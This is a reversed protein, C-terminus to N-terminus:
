SWAVKVVNTQMNPLCCRSFSHLYVWMTLSPITAWQFYKEFIYLNRQYQQGIRLPPRNLANRGIYWSQRASVKANALSEQRHFSSSSDCHQRRKAALELASRGPWTQCGNATARRRNCGCSGPVSQRDVTWDDGEIAVKRWRSFVNKNLCDNGLMMM